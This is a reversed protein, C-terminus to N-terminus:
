RQEGCGGDDVAERGKGKGRRREGKRWAFCRTNGRREKLEM